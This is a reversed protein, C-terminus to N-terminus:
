KEMDDILQDMMNKFEELNKENQQIEENEIIVKDSNYDILNPKNYSNNILPLVINKNDNINDMSQYNFNTKDDNDFNLNNSKNKYHNFNSYNSYNNHYYNKDYLRNNNKFQNIQSKQQEVIKILEIAYAENEKLIRNKEKLLKKM